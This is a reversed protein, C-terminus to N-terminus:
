LDKLEANFIEKALNKYETYKPDFQNGECMTPLIIQQIVQAVAKRLEAKQENSRAQTRLEKEVQAELKKFRKFDQALVDLCGAFTKSLKVWSDGFEDPINMALFSEGTTPDRQEQILKMAFALMLPKKAKEGQEIGSLEFLAPLDKKFSETHLVMRNLEKNPAALLRDYKDKLVKMNDLHRLPFGAKACVVVMQSEKFNESVDGDGGVSPNFNAVTLEFAKILKNRFAQTSDSTAAPLAIQVMDMVQGVNGQQACETPNFEVYSMAYNKVQRVFKELKEDTNLENKLKDLINVGVMRMLPDNQATEEMAARANKTCIDLIIDTATDYDTSAYLNAFTREGDEGLGAVMRNRIEAANSSQYDQNIAYQKVLQQVAEPDYKKIIADDQVANKQCKTGAQRVVNDLIAGLEGKFAKIGEIMNNLEIIIEQLLSIGYLYAEIRTATIYYNCKATKYSAFV